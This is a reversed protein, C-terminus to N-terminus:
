FRIAFQLQAENYKQGGDRSEDTRNVEMKLAAKPNLDYRLGLAQRAYSRGSDQSLFYNDGQDLSAKEFRVFPTLKAGITKGVQLFGAWSTRSGGGGVDKNSFRYYESIVEWDNADYFGYAGLMNVKTTNSQAAGNYAGVNQTFGHGGLTLGDLAGSFRYRLSAGLLKNDNDDRVANFDLTGDVIRGGNGVYADYEFKGAGLATGGTAWLGVTHAPLIGGQDEFGVMKPRLVSTQIQAGHHFATNWYGYPTHFRGAWLTLQDNFTYGIQLRELDTALGGGDGYEFNLELLSKIRDGFEPTLYVDLNGLGFGRKRGDAVTKGSSTYGVDAFGHLPVGANVPARASSDAMQALNRELADIRGDQAPAAAAATLPAAAKGKELEGLRNALLEIQAVSQALKKELDAIREADSAAWAQVAFLQSIALGLVSLRLLRVPKQSHM